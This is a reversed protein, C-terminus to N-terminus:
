WYSNLCRVGFNGFKLLQKIQVVFRSKIKKNTFEKNVIKRAKGFEKFLLNTDKHNKWILVGIIKKANVVSNNCDELESKFQHATNRM